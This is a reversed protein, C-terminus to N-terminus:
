IIRIGDRVIEEVLANDKKRKIEFEEETFYHPQIERKFRKELRGIIETILLENKTELRKETIIAIDIDSDERYQEKVTSGFVFLQKIEILDILQRAFERVIIGLRFNFNNSDKRELECLKVAELAYENTKNIKYYTKKGTKEKLVIRFLELDSLTKVLANDGLKTFKKIEQRSVGRGPAESVLVLIRWASKNGFCIDLLM